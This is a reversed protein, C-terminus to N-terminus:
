PSTYSDTYRVCVRTRWPPGAVLIENPELRLGLGVFRAVWEEVAAKGHLNATWTSRGPFVFSVAYTAFLPGTNGAALQRANRRLMLRVAAAYAQPAVALFVLLVSGPKLRDLSRM